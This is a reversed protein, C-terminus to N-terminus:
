VAADVADKLPTLAAASDLGLEVAHEIWLEIHQRYFDIMPDRNAPIKTMAMTQGKTSAGVRETSAGRRGARRPVGSISRVRPRSSCAPRKKEGTGGARCFDATGFAM